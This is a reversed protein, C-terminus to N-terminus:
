KFIKWIYKPRFWQIYGSILRTMAIDYVIFVANLMVWGAALIWGSEQMIEEYGPFQFLWVALAVTIGALINFVVIKLVWELVRNKRTELLSKILPYCGLFLIYYLACEKNPAILISLISVAGYTLWAAGWGIEVVIPVLFLGAIAPLAFEAMPIVGTLMMVVISLAAMMGGLAIRSTKKM